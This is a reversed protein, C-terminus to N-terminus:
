FFVARRRSLYFQRPLHHPNASPHPPPPNITPMLFLLNRLCIVLMTRVAGSWYKAIGDYRHTNWIQHGSHTHRLPSSPHPHPHPPLSPLCMMSVSSTFRKNVAGEKGTPKRCASQLCIASKQEGLATPGM